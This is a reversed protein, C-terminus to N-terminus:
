IWRIHNMVATNACHPQTFFDNTFDAYKTDPYIYLNRDAIWQNIKMDWKCIKSHGLYTKFGGYVLVNEYDRYYCSGDDHDLPWVAHYNAVIFNHFIESYWHIFSNFATRKKLNPQLLVRIMFHLSHCVIGLTWHVRSFSLFLTYDVHDATERVTNFM